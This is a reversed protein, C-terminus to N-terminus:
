YGYKQRLEKFVVEAAVVRGEEIDKESQILKEIEESPIKTDRLKISKLKKQEINQVITNM